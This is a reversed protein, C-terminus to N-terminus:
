ITVDKVEGEGILPFPVQEPGGAVRVQYLGPSSVHWEWRDPSPNNGRIPRFAGDVLEVAKGTNAPSLTVRVHFDPLKAAPAPFVVPDDALIQPEQFEGTGFRKPLENLVYAKLTAGTVNGQSDRPAAGRLGELLVLTFLGRVVGTQALPRERAARSWKTAFGYCVRAPQMSTRKEYVPDMLPARTYDNRCCDMFLVVEDFFGARAFYDAYRSGAVHYFRTEAANAMLLAAEKYDPAFGHGALYIYLRRGVKGRAVGQQQITDFAVLVAETTPKAEFPTKPDPPHYESSLIKTINGAPVAAGTPSCLWDHFDKADNEPGSLDNLGPYRSIGVVVAHDDAAM